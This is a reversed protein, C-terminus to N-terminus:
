SEKVEKILKNYEKIWEQPIVIGANFFRDIGEKLDQIRNIKWITEPMIGIPHKEFKM